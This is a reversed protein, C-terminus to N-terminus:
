ARKRGAEQQPAYYGVIPAEERRRGHGIPTPSYPAGTRKKHVGGLARARCTYMLYTRVPGPLV